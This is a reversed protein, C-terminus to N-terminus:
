ESTIEKLRKELMTRLEVIELSFDQKEEILAILYKLSEETLFPISDRVVIYQAEESDTLTLIYKATTVVLTNIEEQTPTFWYAPCLIFEKAKHEIIIATDEECVRDLVQDFDKCLEESSMREMDSVSPLAKRM